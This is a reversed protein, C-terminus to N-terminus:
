TPMANAPAEMSAPNRPLWVAMWGPGRHNWAYYPIAMLHVPESEFRKGNGDFRAAVGVGSLVTVGGLLDPRHRPTLTAGDPLAVHHVGCDHDVAEICYVIPGRQLAICGANAPVKEHSVVRRVVMPLDLEVCDGERWTRRIVAYGASPDPDVPRGNVRLAVKRNSANLFRYLDSPVPLEVAWGPIRVHLTFDAPREPRVEIRIRGDWPYRTRQDLQVSINRLTVEATGAVFLNIYIAADDHAYVLGPLSAMFRAVNTPCCACGFWDLREKARQNFASVGDWALPNTYFFRDGRLSVGALFGNYLVRELVDFYRADRHVLFLRHNWMANAIAACTEAYASDNPLEYDNGFAEGAGRAGVGGTIYLKRSVVNEWLRDIATQYGSEGTMAGVDAMGCYLYIARVAHGVAEAQELVPKHDQAYSGYCPRQEGHGRQDLFFKALRLYRRDGTARFLRVLGIEVEPHGPAAHCSGPGFIADIHDAFKTAVDLLSAKGTAEHHAVAAEFLHGACYLEHKARLDTWRRHPAALTFYTNLYGDTQQAGAIRTILEDLQRDLKPDPRRALVYSAGEIVKYLDSDNYVLGEHEGNLTGAARAFNAIRGTRDCKDLAHPITVDANAKLRPSWFEDDIRVKTM